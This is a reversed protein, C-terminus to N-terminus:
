TATPQWRAEMWVTGEAGFTEVLVDASGPPQTTIEACDAVVSVSVVDASGIVAVRAWSGATALATLAADTLDRRVTVPPIPWHGCSELEVEVGKRDAIDAVHRLEHLLQYNEQQEEEKDAYRRENEGQEIAAQMDASPNGSGPLTGPNEGLAITAADNVARSTAGDNIANAAYNDVYSQAAYEEIYETVEDPVADADYGTPEQIFCPNRHRPSTNFRFALSTM